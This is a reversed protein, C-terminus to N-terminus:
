AIEETKRSPMQIPRGGKKGNLRAADSKAITTVSGGSAANEKRSVCGRRNGNQKETPLWVCNSPEYNGNVKQRDISTGEPRPGMDALFNLFGRKELWRACITIGRGGYHEYDPNKPNTCRQVMNKYSNYERPNRVSARGFKSNHGKLFRGPQGKIRRSRESNDTRTAITTPKGCGCECLKPSESVPNAHLSKQVVNDASQM